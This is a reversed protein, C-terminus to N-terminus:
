IGDTAISASINRRLVGLFLKDYIIQITRKYFENYNEYMGQWLIVPIGRKRGYRAMKVSIIQSDEFTQILDYNDQDLLTILDPFWGNRGPLNIGPMYHARATVSGEDVIREVVLEKTDNALFIDVSIGRNALARALGIEQCNYNGPKVPTSCPRVLAIKSIREM